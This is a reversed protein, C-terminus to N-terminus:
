SSSSNSSSNSYSKLRFWVWLGLAAGVADILVDVGSAHRGAVFHQHIEDTMAYFVAFGWALSLVRRPAFKEEMGWAYSVALLAYGLMHGGKKVLLDVLGFTPLAASPM